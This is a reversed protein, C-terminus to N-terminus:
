KIMCGLSVEDMSVVVNEFSNVIRENQRDHEEFSSKMIRGWCLLYCTACLLCCVASLLLL